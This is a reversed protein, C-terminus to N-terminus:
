PIMFLVIFTLSINIQSMLILYGLFLGINSIFPVVTNEVNTVYLESDNFIVTTINSDNTLSELADESLIQQRLVM